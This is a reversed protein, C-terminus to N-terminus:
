PSPRIRGARGFAVLLRNAQETVDAHRHDALVKDLLYRYEEKQVAKLILTPNTTCDTPKFVGIAEMDGTDAVVTTMARLADLKSPM